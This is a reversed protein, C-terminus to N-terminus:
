ITFPSASQCIPSSTSMLFKMFGNRERSGTFQQNFGARRLAFAITSFFFIGEWIQQNSILFVTGAFNIPTKKLLVQLLGRQRL